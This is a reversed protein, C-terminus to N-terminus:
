VFFAAKAESLEITNREGRWKRFGVTISELNGADITELNYIVSDSVYVILM